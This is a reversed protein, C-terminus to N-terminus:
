RQIRGFWSKKRPNMSGSFQELTANAMDMIAKSVPHKPKSTVLALGKNTSSSVEESNPVAFRFKEGIMIEADSKSIGTQANSRNLVFDLRSKSFNLAELTGIVIKMNKLSPMDLTTILFCKDATDFVKLIVDTFAPPTDVVIFSYSNRLKEIVGDVLDASIFEVDTPNTPALLLDLNGNIPSMLSKVGVEDLSNQMSIADSLTKKPEVQLAVAVDGFQLDLDVLAVKGKGLSALAHALNISLTTKGCGGKASFVIVVKGRSLAGLENSSNELLKLSVEMSRKCAAVISSADDSSVVERVGSRIAEMMIGVDLRKRILVVGLSPRSTRFHEAVARATEMKISPGIVILQESLDEAVADYLEYTSTLIQSSEGVSFLYRQYDDSNDTLIFTV